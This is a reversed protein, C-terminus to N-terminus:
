QLQNTTTLLPGKASCATIFFLRRLLFAPSCLSSSGSPPLLSSPSLAILLLSLSRCIWEPIWEVLRQGHYLLYQAQIAHPMGSITSAALHSYSFAVM